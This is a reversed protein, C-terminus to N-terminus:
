LNHLYNYYNQFWGLFENFRKENTWDFKAMNRVYCANEPVLWRPLSDKDAASLVEVWGNFVNKLSNIKKFVKNINIEVNSVRAVSMYEFSGGVAYLNEFFGHRFIKELTEENSM